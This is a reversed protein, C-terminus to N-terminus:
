AFHQTSNFLLTVKDHFKFQLSKFKKEDNLKTLIELINEINLFSCTQSGFKPRAILSVFYPFYVLINIFISSSSFM